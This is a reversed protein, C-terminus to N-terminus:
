WLQRSIHTEKGVLQSHGGNLKGKLLGFCFLYLSVLFCATQLCTLGTTTQNEKESM